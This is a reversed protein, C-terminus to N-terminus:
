WRQVSLNWGYAHITIKKQKRFEKEYAPLVGECVIVGSVKKYEKRLDNIYGQIQRVADRGIRGLKVEVVSRNGESDKLLLDIRGSKVIVQRGDLVLGKEILGPSNAIHDEIDKELAQSVEETSRSLLPRYQEKQSDVAKILIQRDKDTLRRHSRTASGIIQSESRNSSFSINLSLKDALAKNFHLPRELAYSRIPDGFLVVDNDKKSLPRQGERHELIHPNRYKTVIASDRCAVVTDLVRDVVYYATIYKKSNITTHFFVYDGPNLKKKITRARLGSEGYTFERFDPDLHHPLPIYPILLHM